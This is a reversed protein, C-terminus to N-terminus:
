PETCQTSRRRAAPASRSEVSKWPSDASMLATNPTLPEEDAPITCSALADHLAGGLASGALGAKGLLHLSRKLALVGQQTELLQPPPAERAALWM